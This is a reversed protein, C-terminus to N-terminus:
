SLARARRSSSANILFRPSATCRELAGLAPTGAAWRMRLSSSSFAMLNKFLRTSAVSFAVFAQSTPKCRAPTASAADWESGRERCAASQCISRWHLWNKALSARDSASALNAVTSVIARDATSCLPSATSRTKPSPKTAWISHSRVKRFGSNRASAIMGLVGSRSLLESPRGHQCLMWSHPQDTLM